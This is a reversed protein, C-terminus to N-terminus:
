AQEQAHTEYQALMATLHEFQHVFWTSEALSMNSQPERTARAAGWGPFVAAIADLPSGDRLCTIADLARDARVARMFGFPDAVYRALYAEHTERTWADDVVVAARDRSAVAIGIGFDADATCWALGRHTCLDRFAAFSVGCWLEPLQEPTAWQPPPLCDHVALVGGDRLLDLATGLCVWSSAYTHFPDAVVLDVTGTLGLSTVEDHLRDPDEYQVATLLDPLGLDLRSLAPNGTARATLVVVRRMDPERMLANALGGLGVTTV